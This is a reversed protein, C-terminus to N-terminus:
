QAYVPSESTAWDEMDTPDALSSLLGIWFRIQHISDLFMFTMYM